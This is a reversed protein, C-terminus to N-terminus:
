NWDLTFVECEFTHGLQDFRDTVDTAQTIRFELNFTHEQRHEVITGIEGVLDHLIELGEKSRLQEGGDNRAVNAKSLRWAVPARNQEVVDFGFTSFTIDSKCLLDYMACLFASPLPNLASNPVGSRSPSCSRSISISRM